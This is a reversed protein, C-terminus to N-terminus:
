AQSRKSQRHSAAASTAAQAARTRLPHHGPADAPGARAPDARAPDAPLVAAQAFDVSAPVTPALLRVSPFVAQLPLAAFRVSALLRRLRGRPVVARPVTLPLIATEGSNGDGGM